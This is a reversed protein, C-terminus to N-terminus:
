SGLSGLNKVNIGRTQERPSSTNETKNEDPTKENAEVASFVCIIAVTASAFFCITMLMGMNTRTAWDSDIRTYLFIAAVACIISLLVWQFTKAM